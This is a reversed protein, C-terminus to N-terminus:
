LEGYRRLEIILQGLNGWDLPILFLAWFGLRKFARGFGKKAKEALYVMPDIRRKRFDTLGPKFIQDFNVLGRFNEM